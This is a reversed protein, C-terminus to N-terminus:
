HFTDLVTRIKGLLRAPSIPKQLFATEALIVGDKTLIDEAYGSIFIVKVDPRVRRIEDYAEKGNKRPMIGDLIVLDIDRNRESFIHVADAGDVAALVNYGFQTLVTVTVNRLASDDEAVLITEHGGQPAIEATHEEPKKAAQTIPLYVAVTTGQGTESLVNIYGDHRKVIGYVVALGLGTGKGPEKTTFFPEFIRRKTHEDMGSGDDSVSICAYDGITGYGNTRVFQENIAIRSTEIAINGRASMADRANAVLNMIVQEIQGKDAMVPLDDAAPKVRLGVDERMLRRLINEFGSVIERMDHIQLDVTQKRALALLSKTLEAARQSSELIQKLDQQAFDDAKIKMLSLHASVTITTLINNFDHAIGGALQGIADMKQAQLLQKELLKQKSVDVFSELLHPRGSLTIPVVTKIVPIKSGDSTILIRESNDVVQGLDTIPCKEKEAPCIFNHCMSGIIEDKPAGILKAAATNVDVITHAERDILLIGAQVAEFITRLRNENEQLAEEAIRRDTIDRFTLVAGIIRSDDIVPTSAYSVPFSTGDKRWFVENKASYHITGTTVAAYIPCEKEPYPLGDDHSHHWVSHSHRGILEDADYGLLRAAAPNVFTHRGDLDVGLIGEGTCDLLLRNRHSAKALQEEMHKRKTVDRFIGRTAILNGNEIKCNVTGDLVVQRGNKTVFVAEINPFREGCQLREFVVACHERCAPHIIDFVNLGSIEEAAYGLTECWARNVYIFRGDPSVSQILDSVNEFLDRYRTESESLTSALQMNHDIEAERFRQVRVFLVFIGSIILIGGVAAATIVSKANRWNRLFLDDTIIAAVILPYREVARPAVLRAVISGDSFRANDRYVVDSMKQQAGIVEHVAGSLSAKGIMNDRAPWRTLLVFDQRFLSISAGDGLNEAIRKYFDSFADVSIGILVLGIMRGSADNLRRSLYFTWKGNGKNRVPTSIFNGTKPDAIHAQFYDRDSLNIQPAPYSRTFNIVDGNEAVITAVDIQPLGEIKDRLMQFVEPSNMKARLTAEDRIHMSQIRETIGDLAAYASSMTQSAHESLVLSLGALQKKWSTLEHTKLLQISAFTIAILAIFLLVGLGITLSSGRPVRRAPKLMKSPVM